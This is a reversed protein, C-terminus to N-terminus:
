ATFVTYPDLLSDVFRSPIAAITQSGAGLFMTERHAFLFAVTLLLWARVDAPIKTVDDYGVQYRITVANAQAQTDPWDTNFAPLLWFPWTSDDLTYLSSSLTQLVGATDVYKVSTIALPNVVGCKNNWAPPSEFGLDSTASSWWTGWAGASAPFSDLLMDYSRQMLVAGMYQEAKARAAAIFLNLLVDSDTDTDEVKCQLKAQALTIPEVSPATVLKLGM